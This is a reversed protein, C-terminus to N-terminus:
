NHIHGLGSTQECASNVRGTYVSASGREFYHAHPRIGSGLQGMPRREAGFLGSGGRVAPVAIAMSMAHRLKLGSGRDVWFREVCPTRRNTKSVLIGPERQLRPRGAGGAGVGRWSVMCSRGAEHLSPGSEVKPNGLQVKNRM